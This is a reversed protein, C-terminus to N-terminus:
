NKFYFFQVFVNKSNSHIYLQPLLSITQFKITLHLGATRCNTKIPVNKDYNLPTNKNKQLPLTHYCRQGDQTWPYLIEGHKRFVYVCRRMALNLSHVVIVQFITGTLSLIFILVHRDSIQQNVNLKMKM